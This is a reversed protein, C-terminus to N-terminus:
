HITQDPPGPKAAEEHNVRIMPIFILPLLMLGILGLFLLRYSNTLDFIWGSAIPAAAGATFSFLSMAGLVRGFMRLDFLKAIMAGYFPSVAGGGFAALATAIALESYSDAISFLVLAAISITLIGAFVWRIDLMDCLRGGIPSSAMGVMAFLSILLAAQERPTGIDTAFLALNSLLVSFTAILTSMGFAAVWFNRSRLIITIASDGVDGPRDETSPADMDGSLVEDGDPTLGKDSPQDVIVRRALLYVLAAAVVGVVRMAVRWDTAEILLAVLPPVVLGGFQTGLAAIGIALGRNRRFWRSLLMPSFLMTLVASGIPILLSYTGVFGWVNLTFSMLFFGAGMVMASGIVVSRISYRDLLAGLKPALLGTAFGHGTAAMMVVSRSVEFDREVEGAFLSFLYMTCGAGVAQVLLCALVLWWGYFLSQTNM